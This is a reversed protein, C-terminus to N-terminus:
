CEKGSDNGDLDVMGIDRLCKKRHQMSRFVMDGDPTYEHDPFMRRAEPIQDPHIGATWCLFPYKQRRSLAGNHEATLSRLADGGCKECCVVMPAGESLHVFEETICRCEECQYCYLPM